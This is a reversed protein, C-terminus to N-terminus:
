YLYLQRMKEIDVHLVDRLYNEVTGHDKKMQELATGLYSRDVTFLARMEPSEALYHAYKEALYTNSLMYDSLITEEDVGLASLILAAGLGTRDKGASCHFMLPVDAENQLLEFLKVYQAIAASDTVLLRNMERMLSDARGPLMLEDGMASMLNGPNISCAYGTATAPIKDPAEAMEGASRFDVVSVLPLSGLYALDEPTLKHLDDSRLIKGWKVYRGDVTRYGGLDRFNHGGTMPLHREALIARGHPTVVQFYSRVSDPVDLPYVGPEGGEFIPSSFDITEVTRGAYVAVPEQKDIRISAAKTQKDRLIEVQGTLDRGSYEAKEAPSGCSFMALGCGIMSLILKNM